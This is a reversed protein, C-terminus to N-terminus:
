RCRQFFAVVVAGKAAAKDWRVVSIRVNGQLSVNGGSINGGGIKRINGRERNIAVDSIKEM